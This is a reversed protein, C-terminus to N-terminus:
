PVQGQYGDIFSCRLSDEMTQLVPVVWRGTTDPRTTTANGGIGLYHKTGKLGIWGAKGGVRSWDFRKQIRDATVPIGLKGTSLSDYRNDCARWTGTPSLVALSNNNLLPLVQKNFDCWKTRIPM